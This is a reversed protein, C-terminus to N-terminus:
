YDDEDLWSEFEKRKRVEDMERRERIRREEALDPIKWGQLAAIRKFTEEEGVPVDITFRKTASTMGMVGDMGVKAMQYNKLLQHRKEASRVHSLSTIRAM